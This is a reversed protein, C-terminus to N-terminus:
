TGPKATAAAGLAAVKAQADQTAGAIAKDVAAKIKPLEDANSLYFILDAYFQELGLKHVKAPDNLLEAGAKLEQWMGSLDGIVFDELFKALLQDIPGNRRRLMSVVVNATRKRQEMATDKRLLFGVVAAVVIAALVIIVINTTLSAFLFM